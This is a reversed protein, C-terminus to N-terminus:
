MMGGMDPMSLEGSRMKTVLMQKVKTQGRELAEIIDKQLQEKKEPNLYEEDIELSVIKQNGDMVVNIKGNVDAQVKEESLANKMDKAQSRMDKVQKLKSFM